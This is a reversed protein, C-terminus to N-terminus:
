DLAIWQAWSMLDSGATSASGAKLEIFYACDDVTEFNVQLRNQLQRSGWHAVGQLELQPRKFKPQLITAHRELDIGHVLVSPQPRHLRQVQLLMFVYEYTDDLGRSRASRAQSDLVDFSDFTLQLVGTRSRSQFLDPPPKGLNGSWRGGVDNGFAPITLGQGPVEEIGAREDLEVVRLDVCWDDILIM